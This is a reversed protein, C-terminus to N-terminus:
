EASGSLDLEPEHEGKSELYGANTEDPVLQMIRRTHFKRTESSVFVLEHVISEAPHAAGVM